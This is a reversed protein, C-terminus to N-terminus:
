QNEGIEILRDIITRTTHDWTYNEFVESRLNEAKDRAEEKNEYAQRMAKKLDKISKPGFHPFTQDKYFASSDKLKSLSSSSGSYSDPSVLYSNDENLFEAQATCKTGIVPLGCAAAEIYPIGFGEGRSPLVFTDGIAYFSAMDQEPINKPYLIVHPLDEKSKDVSTRIEEIEKLIYKSRKPDGNQRSAIILKVDEDSSFEEYFAKLLIDYGKRMNWAFVSLFIFSDGFEDTMPPTEEFLTPDVGLPVVTIPLKIGAEKLLNALYNSPVWIENACQIKELYDDHLTGSTEMMTYLIKYGKGSIIPPITMGYIKVANDSTKVRSLQDLKIATEKDVDIPAKFSTTKVTVGYNNLGLVINRNMNSFGGFNSFQGHYDVEILNLDEYEDEDEDEYCEENEEDEEICAEPDDYDETDDEFEEEDANLSKYDYQKHGLEDVVDEEYLINEDDEIDNIKSLTVCGTEDDINKDINVLLSDKPASMRFRRSRLAPKDEKEDEPTEHTSINDVFDDEDSPLSDILPKVKNKAASDLVEIVCEDSEKEKFLVTSESSDVVSLFCDNSEDNKVLEKESSQQKKESKQETKVPKDDTPLKILDDDVVVEEQEPKPNIGM